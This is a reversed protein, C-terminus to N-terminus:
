VTRRSPPTPVFDLQYEIGVCRVGTLLRVLMTVKRLGSGLDYFVDDDTFAIRETLELIVSAPTPQYRVMGYEPQLNAQPHPQPILIENLLFDLNEYGHHPQGWRQPVYYAPDM